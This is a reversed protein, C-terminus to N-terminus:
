EGLERGVFKGNLPTVGEGAHCFCECFGAGQPGDGDFDAVDVLGVASAQKRDQFSSLINDGGLARSFERFNEGFNLLLTM